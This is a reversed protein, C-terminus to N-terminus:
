NYLNMAKDIDGGIILLLAQYANEINKFIAEHDAKSFNGTVWNVMEIEPPPMGVGLKVRTFNDTGLCLIINKIGNHGGDAGKRKIRLKGVALNIDDQIIIINEPPIKYYVAAERISEGSLNMYTQPKM